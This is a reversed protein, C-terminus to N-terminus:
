LDDNPLLFVSAKGRHRLPLRCGSPGHSDEFTLVRDPGTHHQSSGRGSSLTGLAFGLTTAGAQREIDGALLLLLRRWRALGGRIEDATLTLDFRGM